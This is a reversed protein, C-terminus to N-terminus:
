KEAEVFVSQDPPHDLREIDPVEGSQSQCREVRSFGCEDLLEELSDYDYLWRHQHESLLTSHLIEDLNSRDQEEGLGTGSILRDAPTRYQSESERPIEYEGLYEKIFKELDPTVLRVRGGNELIRYCESVLAEGNERCLHEIVHSAYVCEASGDDFPLDTSIDHIRLNPVDRWGSEPFVGAQQLIRHIKPHKSMRANWSSDVNM